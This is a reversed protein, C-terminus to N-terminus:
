AVVQNVVSALLPALVSVACAVSTEPLVPMEAGTVTVTSFGPLGPGHKTISTLTDASPRPVCVVGANVLV